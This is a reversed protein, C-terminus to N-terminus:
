GDVIKYLGLQLENDQGDDFRILVRDDWSFEISEMGEPANLSGIYKAEPSFLDFRFSEGVSTNLLAWLRGQHDTFFNAFRRKHTSIGLEDVPIGTMQAQRRRQQQREELEQETLEIAPIGSRSFLTQEGSEPNVKFIRYSTDQPSTFFSLDEQFRFECFTCSIQEFPPDEMELELHYFEQKERSVPNLQRMIIDGPQSQGIRFPYNTIVLEDSVWTLRTHWGAELETTTITEDFLDLITIRANSIDAVAIRGEPHIAAHTINSFEGPGRGEGGFSQILNGDMDFHNITYLSRDIVVLSSDNLVGAWGPNPIREIQSLNWEKVLEFQVSAPFHNADTEEDRECAHFLPFFIFAFLVIYHQKLNM